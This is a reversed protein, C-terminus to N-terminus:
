FGTINFQAEEGQMARIKEVFGKEWLKGDFEKYLDKSAQRFAERNPLTVKVGSKIMTNVCDNWQKESAATLAAGATKAEEKLINHFKEPVKNWSKESIYWAFAAYVHNTIAYYQAVEYFKEPCTLDPGNDQGDVIGQKMAMYLENWNVPVPKFGWVEFLRICVPIPMVRIKIGKCDEPSFIPGKTTNINRGQKYGAVTLTRIGKDQRLKEYIPAFLESNYIRDAEGLSNFLYPLQGVYFAEHGKMEGALTCDIATMDITGLTMGQYTASVGGLQFSPYVQVIVEGNTRKAVGKAFDNAAIDAPAGPPFVLNLKLTIAAETTFPVLFFAILIISLVKFKSIHIKFGTM